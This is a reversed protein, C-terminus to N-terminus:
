LHHGVLMTKHFGKHETLGVQPYLLYPFVVPCKAADADGTVPFCVSASRVQLMHLYLLTPLQPCISGSLHKTTQVDECNIGNHLLTSPLLEYQFHITGGAAESGIVSIFIILM